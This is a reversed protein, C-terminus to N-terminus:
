LAGTRAMWILFSTGDDKKKQSTPDLRKVGHTRKKKHQFFVSQRFRGPHRHMRGGYLIGILQLM